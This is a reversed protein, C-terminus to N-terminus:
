NGPNQYLAPIARIPRIATSPKADPLKVRPTEQADKRKVVEHDSDEQKEINLWRTFDKQPQESVSKINLNRDLTPKWLVDTM